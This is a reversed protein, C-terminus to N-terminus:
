AVHEFEAYLKEYQSAIQPMQFRNANQLGLAVLSHRYDSDAVIKKVARHIEAVNLPSEIYHIADRGVEEHPPLRSAIVPRGVAHAELIPMGFGEHLSAFIVLDALCYQQYVEEYTLNEFQQYQINHKKLLATQTEALPGIIVLNSPINALAKIVTEVNKHVQTGIQLIRPVAVNFERAQFHFAPPIPNPIVRLKKEWKRGFHHLIDEKTYQSVTKISRSFRM